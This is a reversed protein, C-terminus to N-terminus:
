ILSRTEQENYINNVVYTFKNHSDTSKSYSPFSVAFGYILDKNKLTYNKNTKFNNYECKSFIGLIPYILLLGNKESRYNRAYHGYKEKEYSNGLIKEIVDNNLDLMQHYPNTLIGINFKSNDLTERPKRLLANIKYINNVNFFINSSGGGMLGVSWNTLEGISNMNKLFISYNHPMVIKADKHVKYKNFFNIILDSKIDTWFYSYNENGYPRKIIDSEKPFGIKDILKSVVEKNNKIENLDFSTTQSFHDLFTCNSKVGHRMKVRSTIMLLPHSKVKLGFDLPTLNKESMVRFQGRLEETATSIHLFWDILDDTMFLKSVDKYEESYGLWRSMQMLTDYMKSTRLFYSISLGELTLGRSLRDGGIVITQLGRDKKKLYKEYDLYDNSNGSLNKVNFSIDSVVFKIGYKFNIINFLEDNSFDKNILKKINNKIQIELDIYSRDGPNLLISRIKDLYSIVNKYVELNVRIYKSVHILMSKHKILEGRLNRLSCSIIFQLIADILSQPFGQENNFTSKQHNYNQIFFDQDNIIEIFDDILEGENNFLKKLGVYNSPEPLDCIFSKPFLDPGEDKTEAKPHIFINSFPTATYGVYSKRSFLNLLTRILRNITKPDYEEDPIDNIFDQIGTDVSAHDVEDDIVLIPFKDIVPYGEEIKLSLPKEKIQINKSHTPSSIIYRILNELSTKNKKICFLMPYDVHINAHKLVTTNLDGNFGSHTFTIPRNIKTKRLKGLQLIQNSTVNNYVTREEGLFETNYGFFGQDLREHTQKRLDNTTGSLVVIFKYSADLAKNCLAIFNTTKGSQVHGVVLGRRDWYGDRLPNELLSLIEDSSKDISNIVNLPLRKHELLWQKYTDWYPRDSLNNYWDVHGNNNILISHNSSKVKINKFIEDICIDIELFVDKDINLFELTKIVTESVDTKTIDRSYFLNLRKVSISYIDDYLSSKSVM